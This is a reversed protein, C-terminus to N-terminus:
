IGTSNGGGLKSKIVTVVKDLIGEGVKTTTVIGLVIILTDMLKYLNDPIDSHWHVLYLGSIALFFCFAIMLLSNKTEDLSLGDKIWSFLSGFLKKIRKM